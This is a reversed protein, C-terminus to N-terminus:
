PRIAPLCGHCTAAVDHEGRVIRRAGGVGVPELPNTVSGQWNIQKVSLEM